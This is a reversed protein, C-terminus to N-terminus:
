LKSIFRFETASTKCLPSNPSENHKAFTTTALSRDSSDRGHDARLVLLADLTKGPFIDLRVAYDSCVFQGPLRRTAKACSIELM